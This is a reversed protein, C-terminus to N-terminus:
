VNLMLEILEEQILVEITSYKFGKKDKTIIYNISMNKIAREIQFAYEL